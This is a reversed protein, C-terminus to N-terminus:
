LLMLSFDNEDPVPYMDMSVIDSLSLYPALLQLNAPDERSGRPAHNLFLPREYSDAAAIPDGWGTLVDDPSLGNWLPEDPGIWAILNPEM